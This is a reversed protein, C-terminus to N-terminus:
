VEVTFKREQYGAAIRKSEEVSIFVTLKGNEIYYSTNDYKQNFLKKFYEKLEAVKAIRRETLEADYEFCDGFNYQDSKKYGIRKRDAFVRYGALDNLIVVEDFSSDFHKNVFDRINELTYSIKLMDGYDPTKIRSQNCDDIEPDDTIFHASDCRLYTKPLNGYKKLQYQNPHCGQLELFIMNGKNDHFATRIRCNLGNYDENAGDWGAGEFYLVKNAM